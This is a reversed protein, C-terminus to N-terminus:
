AHLEELCAQRMVDIPPERGTWLRFSEAGQHVLMGLGGVPRAGASRAQKLLLTEVPNYVLDYVLMDWPLIVGGPLPSRLVHPAMGASTCNVLLRAQDLHASLDNATLPASALLAGAPLHPLLSRVLTQARAVTRNLVVVRAGATALAYVVARASGGAGLVICRQSAPDFGAENLARLFGAADTNHGTLKGDETVVVTNVAGITQADPSVEDLHAIVAQKHPVTVNAGAFSLARLGLVAEGVRRPHVPLPVYAWDLGFAAFAANHMAPSLSHEVPWGILGVLRTKATLAPM